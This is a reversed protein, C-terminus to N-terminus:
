WPPCVLGGAKRPELSEERFVELSARLLPIEIEQRVFSLRTSSDDMRFELLLEGRKGDIMEVVEMSEYDNCDSLIILAAFERGYVSFRRM